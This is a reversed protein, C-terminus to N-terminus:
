VYPLIECTRITVYRGGHTLERHAGQFTTGNDSYLDSPVGRHSVFRTYAALFAHSTYDTVLELHIAKTTICIFLAIYSKLSKHGRGPVSRVLIPSAYDVGTHIFARASPNVRFYPLNAMLETSLLASERACQFADTCSPDFSTAAACFGFNREYFQEPLNLVPM